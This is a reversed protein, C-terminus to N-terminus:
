VQTTDDKNGSENEDTTTPEPKVQEKAKKANEETEKKNLEAVSIADPVLRSAELATIDNMGAGRLIAYVNASATMNEVRNRTDNIEVDKPELEKFPCSSINKAMALIVELAENEAKKANNLIIGAIYDLNRTGNRAEVAVGNDGGSTRTERNPISLMEEIKNCLFDQLTQVQSQQIATNLVKVDPQVVAGQISRFSMIGKSISQVISDIDEPTDTKIDRLLLIYDVAQQVDDVRSSVLNNCANIADIAVEFDGTRDPKRIYEILPIKNYALPYPEEYNVWKSGDKYVAYQHYKSWCYYVRVKRAITYDESYIKREKITVGLVKTKALDNLYVCFTDVPDLDTVSRFYINNKIDADSAPLILKYGLACIGSNSTCEITKKKYNDDDFADNLAKVMKQVNSSANRASYTLPNVFCYPNITNVAINPYAIAIKNNIQPQQIKSKAKIDTINYYYNYLRSIDAVNKTHTSIAENLIQGLILKDTKLEGSFELDTTIVLRGKNVFM